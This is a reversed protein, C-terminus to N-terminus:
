RKVEEDDLPISRAAQRVLEAANLYARCQRLTTDDTAWSELTKAHELLERHLKHKGEIGVIEPIKERM